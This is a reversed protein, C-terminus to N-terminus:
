TMILPYFFSSVQSYSMLMRIMMPMPSCICERVTLITNSATASPTPSSTLRFTVNFSHEMKNLFVTGQHNWQLIGMVQWQRIWGRPVVNSPDWQHKPQDGRDPSWSTRPAFTKKISMQQKFKGFQARVDKATLLLVLLKSGLILSIDLLLIMKLLLDQWIWSLYGVGQFNLM